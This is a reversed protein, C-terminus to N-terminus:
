EEAGAAPKSTLEALHGLVSNATAADVGAAQMAAGAADAAEKRAEDRLKTILEADHRRARALREAAGCLAQASKPDTIGGPKILKGEGDYEPEALILDTLVGHLLETLARASKSENEGFGRVVVEAVARTRTVAELAKTQASLHRHVASRSLGVGFSGEVEAVIEDLTAGNQRLDHIAERVGQPVRQVSSPRGIGKEGGM